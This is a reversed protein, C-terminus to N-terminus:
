TRMVSREDVVGFRESWPAFDRQARTRERELNTSLPFPSFSSSPFFFNIFLSGDRGVSVEAGALGAPPTVRVAAGSEQVDFEARLWRGAVRM